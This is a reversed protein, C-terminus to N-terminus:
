QKRKRDALKKQLTDLKIDLRKAIAEDSLGGQRLFEVNELLAAERHDDLKV